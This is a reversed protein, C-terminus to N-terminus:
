SVTEVPVQGPSWRVRTSSWAGANPALVMAKSERLSQVVKVILEKRDAAPRHLVMAGPLTAGFKRKPGPLPAPPKECLPRRECDTSDEVVRAPVRILEALPINSILMGDEGQLTARQGTIARLEYPAVSRPQFKTGSRMTPHRWVCEAVVWDRKPHGRDYLEVHREESM